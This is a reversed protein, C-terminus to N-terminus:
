KIAYCQSSNKTIGICYNKLNNDKVAYCRSKDGLSAICINKSDENNIAYCYSKGKSSAICSNKTDSDNVAYCYSSDKTVGLCYNKVDSDNISYCNGGKGSEALCLSKLDNSGSGSSSTSDYNFYSKGKINVNWLKKNLINYASIDLKKINILDSQKAKCQLKVYHVTFTDSNKHGQSGILAGAFSEFLGIEEQQTFKGKEQCQSKIKFTQFKKEKLIIDLEYYDVNNFLNLKFKLNKLIYKYEISTLFNNLNLNKGFDSLKMINSRFNSILKHKGFKTM